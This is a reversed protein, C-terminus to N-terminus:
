NSLSLKARIKGCNSASLIYKGGLANSITSRSVSTLEEVERTTAQHDRMYKRLAAVTEQNVAIRRRQRAAATM